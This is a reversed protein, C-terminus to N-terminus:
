KSNVEAAIAQVRLRRWAVACGPHVFSQAVAHGNHDREPELENLRPNERILCYRCTHSNPGPHHQVRLRAAKLSSPSQDVLRILKDAGGIFLAVDRSQLAMRLPQGRLLRRIEDLDDQSYELQGMARLIVDAFVNLDGKWASYGIAVSQVTNVLLSHDIM